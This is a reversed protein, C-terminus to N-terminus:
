ATGVPRNNAVFSPDCKISGIDTAGNEIKWAGKDADSFTDDRNTGRLVFLPTGATDKIQCRVAQNSVQSGVELEVTDYLVVNNNTIEVNADSPLPVEEPAGGVASNTLKINLKFDLPGAKPLSPDCIVQTVEHFASFSWPGKGGDSFTIDTNAGRSMVIPKGAEDILQCRLEQDAVGTGVKLNVSSFPGPASPATRFSSFDSQVGAFGDTGAGDTIFVQVSTDSQRKAPAALAGSAALLSLLATYQM